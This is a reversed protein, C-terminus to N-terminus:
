TMIRQMPPKLFRMLHLIALPAFHMLAPGWGYSLMAWHIVVLVATPYVLQQLRKWNRRLARVAIDNSLAAPVLMLAVATWGTWIGPADIEALMDDLSGMDIVYFVLHLVSYAFAAVGFHRRRQLLWILWGPQGIVAALPSMAMAIIMLRASMEGSPHLLDMADSRGNALGAIMAAAPTSLVIWLFWRNNLVIRLM